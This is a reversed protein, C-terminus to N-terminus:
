MLEMLEAILQDESENDHAFEIGVTLHDSRM